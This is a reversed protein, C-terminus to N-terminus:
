RGLADFTNALLGRDIQAYYYMRLKEASHVLWGVSGIHLPYGKDPSIESRYYDMYEEASTIDEFVVAVAPIMPWAFGGADIGSDQWDLAMCLKDYLLKQSEDAEAVGMLVPYIQTIADPYVVSWDTDAATNYIVAYERADTDYFGTAVAERMQAAYSDYKEALTDDVGSLLGAACACGSCLECNDMLYETDNDESVKSVGGDILRGVTDCCVNLAQQWDGVDSLDGGANAFDALAMLYVGIYADVSDPEGTIVLSGNEVGYNSICGDEEILRATHWALYKEACSLKEDEPDGSLIGSVAQCAFYPNVYGGDDDPGYLYLEGQDGQSDVIWEVEKELWAFSEDIRERERTKYRENAILYVILM